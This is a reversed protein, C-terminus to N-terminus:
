NLRELIRIRFTDISGATDSNAKRVVELDWNVIDIVDAMVGACSVRRVADSAVNEHGLLFTTAALQIQAYCLKDRHETLQIGEQSTEFDWPGQNQPLAAIKEDSLWDVARQVFDRARKIEGRELLLRSAELASLPYHTNQGYLWLAEELRGLKALCFALNNSYRPIAPAAPNAQIALQFAEKAELRSGRNRLVVGARFYAESLSPRLTYAAQYDQLADGARNEHYTLDGKLLRVHPNDPMSTSLAAIGQRFKVADNRVLAINSVLSGDKARRNLPNWRSALQFDLLAPQYAGIDLWAEGQTALTKSRSWAYSLGVVVAVFVVAAAFWGRWHRRALMWVNEKSEAAGQEDTGVPRARQLEEVLKRIGQAVNTFAADENRWTTIPQANTPLGNLRAIDSTEWDTPRLWIPVVRSLRRHHRELATKLEVEACYDSAMFDPSILLLVIDAEALHADIQGAWEKGATIKRDHWSEIFQQRKLLALATELKERLQEDEHAYSYFLKLARRAHCM